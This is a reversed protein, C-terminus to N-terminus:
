IVYKMLFVDNWGFCIKGYCKCGVFYFLWLFLYLLLMFRKLVVLCIMLGIKCVIEKEENIEM